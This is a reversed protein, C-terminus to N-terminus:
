YFHFLVLVCDTFVLECTKKSLYDISVEALFNRVFPSRDPLIVAINILTRLMNLLTAQNKWNVASSRIEAPM